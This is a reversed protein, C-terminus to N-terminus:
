AIESAPISVLSPPPFPLSALDRALVLLSCHVLGDQLCGGVVQLLRPSVLSIFLPLGVGASTASGRLLSTGTPRCWQLLLLLLLLLLLCCGRTELCACLGCEVRGSWSGLGGCRPM